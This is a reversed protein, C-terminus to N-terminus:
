AGLDMLHCSYKTWHGSAILHNRRETSVCRVGAWHPPHCSSTPPVGEIRRKSVCNYYIFHISGEKQESTKNSWQSGQCSLKRSSIEPGSTVIFFGVPYYQHIKYKVWHFSLNNEQASESLLFMYQRFNSHLNM